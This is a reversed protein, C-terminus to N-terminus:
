YAANGGARSQEQIIEGKRQLGLNKGTVAIMMWGLFDGLWNKLFSSAILISKSVVIM